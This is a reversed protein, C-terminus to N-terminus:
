LHKYLVQHPGIDPIDFLPGYSVYQQKEYFGLAEVRANCWILDYGEKRAQQEAYRLLHAAVGKGRMTKDTAMARFQVPKSKPFEKILQSHAQSYVSLIGVTHDHFDAAYHHTSVEHDGLYKCAEIPQHPRLIKHRLPYTQEVSVTSISLGDLHM